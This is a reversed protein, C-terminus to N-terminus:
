DEDEEDEDASALWEAATFVRVREFYEATTDGVPRGSALLDMLVPALLWGIAHIAEHRSLGEARLRDVAAAVPLEAMLAQNEVIVHTCAHLTLNLLRVRAQRHHQEVVEIREGEDLDNWWDADPPCDPNYIPANEIWSRASSRYPPKLTSPLRVRSRRGAMIGVPVDNQM